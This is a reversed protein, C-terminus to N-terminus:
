LFFAKRYGELSAPHPQILLHCEFKLEDTFLDLQIFILNASEQYGSDKIAIRATELKFIPALEPLSEVKLMKNLAAVYRLIITSGIEQVLSKQMDSLDDESKIETRTTSSLLELLSLITKEKFIVSLKYRLPKIVETATFGVVEDTKLNIGSIITEVDGVRIFPVSMDVEKNFLKSLAIAAHGAGVNGLEKFAEIEDQSFETKNEM